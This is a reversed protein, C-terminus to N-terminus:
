RKVRESLVQVSPWEHLATLIGFKVNTIMFPGGHLFPGRLNFWVSLNRSCFKKSAEFMSDRENNIVKHKVPKM